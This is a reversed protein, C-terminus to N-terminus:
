KKKFLGIKKKGIILNEVKYYRFSKNLKSLDPFAKVLRKTLISHKALDKKVARKIWFTADKGELASVNLKLRLITVTSVVIDIIFIVFIISALIYMLNVPISTIIKYLIPNVIKLMIVGGIGFGIANGLCIRGNVNFKKNSYDWWRLKFLKEMIFSTIYELITCIVMSMIFLAVIDNIYKYLLFFILMGGVGFVPIIPGILFGRSFTLKDSEIACALIEIIYGFFSYIIFLLFLCTLQYM